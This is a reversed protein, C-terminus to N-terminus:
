ALRRVLAGPSDSRRQNQAEDTGRHNELVWWLLSTQGVGSEGLGILLPLFQKRKNGLRRGLHRQKWGHYGLGLFATPHATLLSHWPLCFAEEFGQFGLVEETVVEMTLLHGSSM